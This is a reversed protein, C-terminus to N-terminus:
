HMRSASLVAHVLARILRLTVRERHPMQKEKSANHRRYGKTVDVPCRGDPTMSARDGDLTGSVRSHLRGGRSTCRKRTWASGDSRMGTQCRVAMRNTVRCTFHRALLATM